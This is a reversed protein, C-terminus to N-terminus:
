KKNSDIVKKWDDLFFVWCGENDPTEPYCGLEYKEAYHRVKNVFYDSYGTIIKVPMKQFNDTVFKEIIGGSDEHAIGHLDLLPIKKRKKRM